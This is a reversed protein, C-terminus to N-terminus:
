LNSSCHFRIIIISQVIAYDNRHWFHDLGWIRPKTWKGGQSNYSFHWFSYIIFLENLSIVKNRSTYNINSESIVEHEPDSGSDSVYSIEVGSVNSVDERVSKEEDFSRREEDNEENLKTSKKWSNSSINPDLWRPRKGKGHDTQGALIYLTNWFFFNWLFLALCELVLVVIFYSVGSSCM